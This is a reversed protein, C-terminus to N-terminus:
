KLSSMVSTRKSLYKYAVYIELDDQLSDIEIVPEAKLRCQEAYEEQPTWNSLESKNMALLWVLCKEIPRLQGPILSDFEQFEDLQVSVYLEIKRMLLLGQTWFRKMRLSDSDDTEAARFYCRSAERWGLYHRKGAWKDGQVVFDTRVPEQQLPQISKVSQHFSCACLSLISGLLIFCGKKQLNM